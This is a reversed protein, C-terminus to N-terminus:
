KRLSQTWELIVPETGDIVFQGAIVMLILGIIRQTIRENCANWLM